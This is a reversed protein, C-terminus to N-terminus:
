IARLEAAAAYRGSCLSGFLGPWTLVPRRQRYGPPPGCAGQCGPLVLPPPMTLPRARTLRVRGNRPWHRSSIDEGGKAAAPAASDDTGGCRSCQLLTLKIGAPREFTCAHTCRCQGAAVSRSVSRLNTGSVAPEGPFFSVTNGDATFCQATQLPRCRTARSATLVASCWSSSNRMWCALCDVRRPASRNLNPSFCRRRV